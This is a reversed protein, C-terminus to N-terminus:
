QCGAFSESNIFTVSYDAMRKNEEIYVYYKAQAKTNTVFWQGSHDAYLINNQKYVLLDASGESEEMYIVVDAKSKDDIFYIGGFLRCKDIKFSQGFGVLPLYFLVFSLIVKTM